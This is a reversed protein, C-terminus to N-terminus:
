FPPLCPCSTLPGHIFQPTAIYFVAHTPMENGLCHFPCPRLFPLCFHNPPCPLTPSFSLCLADSVIRRSVVRCLVKRSLSFCPPSVTLCKEAFPAGCYKSFIPLLAPFRAPPPAALIRTHFYFFRGSDCLTIMMFVWFFTWFHSRVSPFFDFIVSLSM